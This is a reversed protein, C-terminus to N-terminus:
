VLLLKYHFQYVLFISFQYEDGIILGDLVSFETTYNCGNIVNVVGDNVVTITENPYQGDPGPPCQAFIGVSLFLVTLFLTIKKM